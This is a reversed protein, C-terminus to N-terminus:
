SLRPRDAELLERVSAGDGGLADWADVVRATWAPPRGATGADSRYTVIRMAACVIEGRSDRRAPM